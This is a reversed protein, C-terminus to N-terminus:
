RHSPSGALRAPNAAARASPEEQWTSRSERYIDLAALAFTTVIGFEFIEAVDIILKDVVLYAAVNASFFLVIDNRPVPIDELVRWTARRRAVPLGIFLLCCFLYFAPNLIHNFNSLFPYLSNDQPIGLLYSLNLTHFNLEHQANVEQMVEPAAFGFVYEGWSVEEGFLVILLLSMALFWGSAVSVKRGKFAALFLRINLIIAPVWLVAEARDLVGNEGRFLHSWVDESAPDLGLVLRIAYIIVVLTWALSTLNSTSV